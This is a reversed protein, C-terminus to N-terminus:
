FLVIHYAPLANPNVILHPIWNLEAIGRLCALVGVLMIASGLWIHAKNKFRPFLSAAHMALLLSPTTFLAFCFGNAFGALANGYLACASFVVLTQGCPLLLTFFGFFFAARPSQNMVLRALWGSVPASKKALWAEWPLKWSFAFGAGMSIILGGFLLSFFTAIKFRNFTLFLATGLESSFVGALTFSCLRGLFYLWRFRHKALLFVLPGCMGACHLNGFIYLPLLSFFLSM